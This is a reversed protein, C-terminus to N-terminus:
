SSKAIEEKERYNIKVFAKCQELCIDKQTPSLSRFIRILDDEQHSITQNSNFDLLYDTSVDFYKAIMKLTDFDPERTNQVYSGMTSPALNLQKALEKQTLNREEILARLNDGFSM